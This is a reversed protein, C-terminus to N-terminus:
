DALLNETVSFQLDLEKIRVWWRTRRSIHSTMTDGCQRCLPGPTLAGMRYLESIDDDKFKRIISRMIEVLTQVGDPRNLKDQGFGM